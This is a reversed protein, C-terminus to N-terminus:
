QLPRPNTFAGSPIYDDGILEFQTGGGNGGFNGENVIGTRIPTGAPPRVDTVHTPAFPLDFRDQIQQPTLGDIDQTRMMWGGQQGTQGETYVRVYNTTGDADFDRIPANPNYPPLRDGANAVSPNVPRVNVGGVNNPANAYESAAEPSPGFKELSALQIDASIGSAVREFLQYGGSTPNQSLTGFGVFLTTLALLMALMMNQLRLTM